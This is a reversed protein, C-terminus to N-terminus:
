QNEVLGEFNINPTSVLTEFVGVLFSIMYEDDIQDIIAKLLIKESEM